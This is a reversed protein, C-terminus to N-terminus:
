SNNTRNHTPNTTTTTTHQSVDRKRKLNIHGNYTRVSQIQDSQPQRTPTRNSPTQLITQTPPQNDPQKAISRTPPQVTTPHDTQTAISRNTSPAPPHIITVDDDDDSDDSDDDSSALERMIHLM